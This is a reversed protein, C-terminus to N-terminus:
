ILFRPYQIDITQNLRGNGKGRLWVDNWVSINLSMGVKWGTGSELLGRASYIGMWTYSSSSGLTAGLFDTNPFYRAKLVKGLLCTSNSIIRWGQKALLAINFESMDRFGMGGKHKPLCLRAWPCQHVGKSSGSNRWWFKNMISKSKVCVAKPLLFCMQRSANSYTSIIQQINTAGALSAEGFLISDDDFFIHNIALRERGIREGKLLGASQSANLLTSFGEVCFLFLYPSLPDGQQLGRTPLFTDISAGNIGVFYSVTSRMEYNSFGMRSWQEWLMEKKDAEINLGLNIKVIEALTEDDLDGDELEHLRSELAYKVQKRQKQKM